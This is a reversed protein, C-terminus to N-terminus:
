ICAALLKYSSTINQKCSSPDIVMIPSILPSKTLPHKHVIGHSLMTYSTYPDSTQAVQTFLKEITERQCPPTIAM